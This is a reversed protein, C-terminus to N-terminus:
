KALVPYQSPVADVAANYIFDYNMIGVYAKRTKAKASGYKYVNRYMPEGDVSIVSESVRGLKDYKYTFTTNDYKSKSTKILGKKNFTLNYTLTEGYARERITLKKPMKNSYFKYTYTMKYKSGLIDGNISSIWGNKYKFTETGTGLKTSKKYINFVTKNLKGKKYTAVAQCGSAKSGTTVRSAKKGSYTWKSVVSDNKILDGNSNYKLVQTSSREWVPTGGFSDSDNSYSIVKSPLDYAHSEANVTIVSSAILLTLVALLSIIRKKM